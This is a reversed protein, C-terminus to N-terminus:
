WFITEEAFLAESRGSLAGGGEYNADFFAASAGEQFEDSDMGIHSSGATLHM